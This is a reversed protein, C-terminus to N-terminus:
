RNKEKIFEKLTQHPYHQLSNKLTKTRGQVDWVEHVNRRWKGASKRALRLLRVSATEGYNLKKGFIYDDRKFLYGLYYNNLM